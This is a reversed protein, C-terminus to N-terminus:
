PAFLFMLFHRRGYISPPAMSLMFFNGLPAFDQPPPRRHLWTCLHLILWLPASHFYMIGLWTVLPVVHMVAQLKSGPLWCNSSVELFDIKRLIEGHHGTDVIQGSLFHSVPSHKEMM